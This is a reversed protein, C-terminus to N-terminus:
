YLHRRPESDLRVDFVGCLVDEVGRPLRFSAEVRNHHEVDVLMNRYGLPRLEVARQRPQKRFATHDNQTTRCRLVLSLQPIWEEGQRLDDVLRAEPPAADPRDPRRFAAAQVTRIADADEPLERRIIMAPTQQAGRGGTM